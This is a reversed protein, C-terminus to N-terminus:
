AGRGEPSTSLKHEHIIAFAEDMTEVFRYKSGIGSLSAGQFVTKLFTTMISSKAVLIVLRENPPDFQVLRRFHTLINRGKPIFSSLAQLHHITYVDNDQQLVTENLMKISEYATEWDWSQTVLHIIITQEADHWYIQSANTEGVPIM